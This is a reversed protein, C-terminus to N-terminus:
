TADSATNPLELWCWGQHTRYFRELRPWSSNGRFVKPVSDATSRAAKLLDEGRIRQGNQSVEVLKRVIIQQKAGNFPMEESGITVILADYEERLEISPVDIEQQELSASQDDDTSDLSKAPLQNESGNLIAWAIPSKQIQIKELQLAGVIATCHEFDVDLLEWIDPSISQRVSQITLPTEFATAILAGRRIQRSLSRELDLRRRHWLDRTAEDQSHKNEDFWAILEPDGFVRLAEDLPYSPTPPFIEFM